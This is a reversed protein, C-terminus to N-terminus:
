VKWSQISQANMLHLPTWRTGNHVNFYIVQHLAQMKRKRTETIPKQASNGNYMDEDDTQQATAVNEADNDDQMEDENLGGTESSGYFTNPDFNFLSWFVNLLPQPMKSVTLSEKLDLADCFKDALNFDDELLSQRIINATSEVIDMSRISDLVDETTVYKLYVLLSRNAEKPTSFCVASQFHNLLLLLVDRNSFRREYEAISISKWIVWFLGKEM